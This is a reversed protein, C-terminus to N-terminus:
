APLLALLAPENPEPSVRIKEGHVTSLAAAVRGSLCFFIASGFLHDLEPRGALAAFASAAKASYLLVANLPKGALQTAVAASEHRLELTDYTEVPVVGIDATALREEFTPLRVRGCLYVITTGSLAAAMQDALADADGPGENVSVFGAERAAKATKRGVAHCPLRVLAAILQKPAHRIANASTIAVAVADPPADHANVPLTTTESLPLLVPEFGLAELRAATRAAGPQPRTVLVRRRM